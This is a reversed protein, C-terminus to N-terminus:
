DLELWGAYGVDLEGCVRCPREELRWRKTEANIGDEASEESFM